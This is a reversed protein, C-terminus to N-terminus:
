KNKKLNYKKDVKDMSEIVEKFFKRLSDNTGFVGMLAVMIEEPKGDMFELVGDTKHKVFCIYSVGKRKEQKEFFKIFEKM